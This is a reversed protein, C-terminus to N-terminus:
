VNLDMSMPPALVCPPVKVRASLANSIEDQKLEHSKNQKTPSTVRNNGRRYHHQAALM